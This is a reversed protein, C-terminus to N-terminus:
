HIQLKKQVRANVVMRSNPNSKFDREGRFVKPALTLANRERRSRAPFPLVRTEYLYRELSAASKDSGLHPRLGVGSACTDHRTETEAPLLVM